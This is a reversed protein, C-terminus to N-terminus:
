LEANRPSLQATIGGDVYIVQGTIYAADDSALFAVAAAVDLTLGRRRLPIREVIAQARPDGAEPSRETVTVGPAVANVRIGYAGLELAMARTMADIAGKTVDYPLGSWHARLGGVSSINVINGRGAQRMVEAAQYALLYAGRVNVALSRDLLDRAAPAWGARRLDAANNVLLDVRGWARLTGDILRDVGEDTGLDAVLPLAEAGLARLEAAVREVDAAARGTIAVRMGERALRAAIGQGIGRNSGTVIAVQGALEAYRPRAAQFLLATDM